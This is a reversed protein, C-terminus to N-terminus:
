TATALAAKPKLPASVVQRETAQQEELYLAVTELLDLRAHQLGNITLWLYPDNDYWRKRDLELPFDLVFQELLSPNHKRIITMIGRVLNDRHGPKMEKMRDIQRGLKEYKDYWRNM